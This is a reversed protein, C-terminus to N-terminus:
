NNCYQAVRQMANDRAAQRQSDDYYEREGQANVRYVPRERNLTDLTNRASLCRQYNERQRKAAEQDKERALQRKENSIQLQQQWTSGSSSQSPPAAPEATEMRTAKRGAPPTGSFHVRGQDDTWKYIGDAAALGPFVMAASLAVARWRRDVM